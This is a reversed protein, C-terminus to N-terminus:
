RAVTTPDSATPRWQRTTPVIMSRIVCWAAGVGILVDGVSFVNAMPIPRPLAFVDGLFPLTTGPGILMSNTFDTTPVRAVGNLLEWAAAASPMYGGNAVIVLMNLAAGVALLPLGPLGLNRLLAIFVLASSAVYLLPGADGVREDLLPSFLVLQFVLGGLALGWWHIHIGALAAVRGGAARGVLLGIGIAYLLIM